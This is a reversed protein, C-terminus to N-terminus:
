MAEDYKKETESIVRMANPKYPKNTAYPRLCLVSLDRNPHPLNTTPSLFVCVRACVDDSYYVCLSIAINWERGCVSSTLQIRVDVCMDVMYVRALASVVICMHPPMRPGVFILSSWMNQPIKDEQFSRVVQKNEWGPM